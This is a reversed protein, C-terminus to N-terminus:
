RAHDIYRRVENRLLDSQLGTLIIQDATLFRAFRILGKGLAAAFVGDPVFWDEAWFGNVQLESEQRDLRANIRGVLRDGFLIPMTYPGYTRKEAPKYIEWIYEFDFLPGARGRASVYELPSLFTTEEGNTADIPTWDDPIKGNQLDELMRLDSALAYDPAKEGGVLVEELIGRDIVEKIKKDSDKRDIPRALYGKWANRFYRGNILGNMAVSKIAFFEEAAQPDAIHDLDKPAIQSRLGYVRERGRRHHTMLEGTLWLYYLAVATDKGGRYNDVQRGVLDRSGLPGREYIEGLVFSITSSNQSAFEVWRPTQKYKEMVLRWYPLEDMPYVFLSGGYDFFLRKKYLLTDFQIPSYDVVRGYLVIHHSEILVSVPDVQVAEVERLAKSAGNEGIWRRGPWLGQKGLIFRRRVEKSIAVVMLIEPALNKKYNNILPDCPIADDDFPLSPLYLTAIAM